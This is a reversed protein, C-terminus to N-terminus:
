YKGYFSSIEFWFEREFIIRLDQDKKMHANKDFDENQYNKEWIRKLEEFDQDRLASIRVLLMDYKKGDVGDHLEQKITSFEIGSFRDDPDRLTILELFTRHKAFEYELAVGNFSKENNPKEIVVASDKSYGWGGSVPLEGLYPFVNFMIDKAVYESSLNYLKLENGM